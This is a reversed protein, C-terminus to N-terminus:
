AFCVCYHFEKHTHTHTHTTHTHDHAWECAHWQALGSAVALLAADGPSLETGAARANVWQVDADSAGCAARGAQALGAPDSADVAFYPAGAADVGLFITTAGQAQQAIYPAAPTLLVPVLTSPGIRRVLVKDRTLPVLVAKDSALLESLREQDRRIYAMRDLPYQSYFPLHQEGPFDPQVAQLPQPSSLSMTDSSSTARTGNRRWGNAPQIWSIPSPVLRHTPANLVRRSHLLSTHEAIPLTTAKMTTRVAQRLLHTRM